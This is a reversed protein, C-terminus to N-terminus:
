HEEEEEEEEEEAQKGGEGDHGCVSGVKAMMGAFM